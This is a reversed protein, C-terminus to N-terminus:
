ENRGNRGNWGHAWQLHEVVTSEESARCDCVRNDPAIGSVSSGNQLAYRHGPRISSVAEILDEYQELQAHFGFAGKLGKVHEVIV